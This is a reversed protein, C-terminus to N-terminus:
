FIIYHVIKQQKLRGLISESVSPLVSVYDFVSQVACNSSQVAPYEYIHTGFCEQQWKHIMKARIKDSVKLIWPITACEDNEKVNLISPSPAHSKLQVAERASIKTM